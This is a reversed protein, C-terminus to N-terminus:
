RVSHAEDSSVVYDKPKTANLILYMAKIMDKAHSWDRSSDLNGLRLKEYPMSSIINHQLYGVYKTVKRTLFQEGRRPSEHNHLIGCCAFLGYGDRYIRVLDHAALKAVGYPSNPSFPTDINQEKIRRGKNNLY